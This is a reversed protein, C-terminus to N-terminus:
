EWDVAYTAECEPCELHDRTQARLNAKMRHGEPCEVTPSAMPIAEGSKVQPMPGFGLVKWQEEDVQDM